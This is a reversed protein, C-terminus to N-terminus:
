SGVVAVPIGVDRVEGPENGLHQVEDELFDLSPRAKGGVRLLSRIEDRRVLHSGVAPIASVRVGGHLLHMPSLPDCPGEVSKKVLRLASLGGVRWTGGPKTRPSGSAKPM